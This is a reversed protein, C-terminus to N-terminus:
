IAYIYLIMEEIKKLESQKNKELWKSSFKKMWEKPDIIFESKIGKMKGSLEGLVCISEACLIMEERVEDFTWKQEKLENIIKICEKQAISIKETTIELDTESKEGYRLEFYKHCFDNWNYAVMDHAYSLRKVYSVAEKGGYILKNISTEFDKDLKTDVRWSKAGGLVIGYMALEISAPNGYDGWNTNLVGVAGYKYGYDIMKTINTEEDGVNECFRSWSGTGPCVIQKKGLEKLRAFNEECPSKTYNWNLYYIDDPLEELTQPHNLLIDAWMMVTKNKSKLHNIIKQVFDIYLKGVNEGDGYYNSLDFTEDGCINFKDNKFLPYYQDILSKVLEFSEKNLPDITHHAMRMTWFNHPAEFDKLVRLHRYEKQELIEYMHGFTAISPIFEIFNEYCYEDIEKIEEKTLYGTTAIINKTEEFEFTHEVYLQLSNMKLYAMTDILKKLTEVTPIKGRTVDHYLGRYQFDPEDEIYLCPIEEFEFIQRLTQLAYFVGNVGDSTIHISVENITIEYKESNGGCTNIVLLAGGKRCPLKDIVKKLRFDISDSYPAIYHSLLYGDRKEFKKVKPLLNMIERIILVMKFPTTKIIEGKRLNTINAPTAVRLIIFVLM